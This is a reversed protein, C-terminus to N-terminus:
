RRSGREYAKRRRRQRLRELASPGFFVIFNGYVALLFFRDMWEAQIAGLIVMCAAFVALWKFKVPVLFFLRVEMDPFLAAAALFLTSEFHRATLVPYSFVLSFAWTLLISTVVYLTTKFAGWISEIGEFIFYLFWLVFLVWIPSSALPLALFTLFRWPEGGVAAEPILALRSVWVPDSMVMLFGAAQLTIFLVGIKPVAIWGLYRELLAWGRHTNKYRAM